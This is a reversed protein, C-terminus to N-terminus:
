RSDKQSYLLWEDRAEAFDALDASWSAVCERWPIGAEMQRRLETTGALRDISYRSHHEMWRFDNPYMRRITELLAVGAAVPAFLDRDLVHLQVGHCVTDRHKSFVPMFHAPRFHVGPVSEHNLQDALNDADIWPAGILEFPRTTGRGESVNTGEVLCAGPYVIATDLTPMNPSPMVWPLETEDYWMERQWGQMSIVTLDLDLQRGHRFFHALEGVTLGHRIPLRGAGIFSRLEPELLPGEVSLGGIPNPRDLVLIPLDQEAAAELLYALTTIFTYFRAGIDQIDYILLDIGQLMEITPKRIAGFLSYVVTGTHPEKGTSVECGDQHVASIGHEPAFLAALTCMPHEALLRINSRFEGDIGTANTVLGIRKGALEDARDHMLVSLGTRVM